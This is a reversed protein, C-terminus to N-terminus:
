PRPTPTGWVGARRNNTFPGLGPQTAFRDVPIDSLTMRYTASRPVCEVVLKGRYGLSHNDILIRVGGNWL